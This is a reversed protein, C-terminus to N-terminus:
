LKWSLIVKDGRAYLVVSYFDMDDLRIPESARNKEMLKFAEQNERRGYCVKAMEALVYPTNSFLSKRLYKYTQYAEEPLNLLHYARGLFFDRMWHVPLRTLISTLQDTSRLCDSLEYWFCWMFPQEAITEILLDRAYDLSDLQRLVVGYLYKM